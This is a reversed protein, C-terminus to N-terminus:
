PMGRILETLISLRALPAVRVVDSCDRIVRLPVLALDRSEGTPFRENVLDLEPEDSGTVYKERNRMHIAEIEPRSLAPTCSLFARIPCEPSM